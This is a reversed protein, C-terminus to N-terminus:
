PKGRKGDSDAPMGSDSEIRTYKSNGLLRAALKLAHDEGCAHQHKTEEIDYSWRAIVVLGKDDGSPCEWVRFWHNAEGKIVGCIDCSSSLVDAM